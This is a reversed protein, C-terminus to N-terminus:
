ISGLNVGKFAVLPSIPVLELVTILIGEFESSLKLPLITDKNM